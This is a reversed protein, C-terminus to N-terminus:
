LGCHGWLHQLCTWKQSNPEICLDSLGFYAMIGTLDQSILGSLYPRVSVLFSLGFFGIRSTVAEEEV